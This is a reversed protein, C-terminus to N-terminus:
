EYAEELLYIEGDKDKYMNMENLKDEESEIDTMYFKHKEKLRKQKYLFLLCLFLNSLFIKKMSFEGENLNM